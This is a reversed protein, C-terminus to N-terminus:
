QVRYPPHLMSTITRFSITSRALGPSLARKVPQRMTTGSTLWSEMALAAGPPTPLSVIAIAEQCAENKTGRRSVRICVAADVQSRRRRAAQRLADARLAGGAQASQTHALQGVLQGEQGAGDLRGVGLDTWAWGSMCTDPSGGSVCTLTRVFRMSCHACLKAARGNARVIQFLRGLRHQERERLFFLCLQQLHAVRGVEVAAQCRGNSRCNETCCQSLEHTIVFVPRVAWV